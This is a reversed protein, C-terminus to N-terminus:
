LQMHFKEVKLPFFICMLKRLLTFEEKKMLLSEVNKMSLRKKGKLIM